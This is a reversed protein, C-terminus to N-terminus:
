PFRSEPCSARMPVLAGPRNDGKPNPPHSPALRHRVQETVTKCVAKGKFTRSGSANAPPAHPRGHTQPPQRLIPLRCLRVAFPPLPPQQDPPKTRLTASFWVSLRALVADKIPGPMPVAAPAPCCRAPDDADAQFNQETGSRTSCASRKSITTDRITRVSKISKPCAEMPM